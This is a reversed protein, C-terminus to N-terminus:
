ADAHQRLASLAARQAMGANEFWERAAEEDPFMEALEILSIGERHAKGPAKHAM